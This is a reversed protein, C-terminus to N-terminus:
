LKYKSKRKTGLDGLNQKKETSKLISKDAALDCREDFYNRFFTILDDVGLSGYRKGYKGSIINNFLVTLDAFRLFYYDRIIMISALIVQDESMKNKINLMKNLYIIWQQILANTVETGNQRKIHAITPTSKDFAAQQITTIKTNMLCRTPTLKALM